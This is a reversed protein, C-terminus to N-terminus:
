FGPINLINVGILKLLFVSFIIFLLGAITGTIIEKGEEAKKPDGASVSILFAGYIMLLLAIGGAIGVALKQFEKIFDIPKTHICGLATWLGQDNEFCDKCLNYKTPDTSLLFNCLGFPSTGNNDTSDEREIIENIPCVEQVTFNQTSCGSIKNGDVDVYVVEFFNWKKNRVPTIIAGSGNSVVPYAWPLDLYSWHDQYIGLNGSYLSQNVKANSINVMIESQYEICLSNKIVKDDHKYTYNAICSFEEAAFVRSHAYLFLVSLLLLSFITVKKQHNLPM